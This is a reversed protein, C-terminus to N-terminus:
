VLSGCPAPQGHKRNSASMSREGICPSRRARTSAWGCRALEVARFDRKDKVRTLRVKSGAWPADGDRELGGLRYEM